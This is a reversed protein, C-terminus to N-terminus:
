LTSIKKSSLICGKENKTDSICNTGEVPAPCCEGQGDDNEVCDHECIMELCSYKPATKYVGTAPDFEYRTWGAYVMSSSLMLATLLSLNKM